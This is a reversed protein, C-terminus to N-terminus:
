PCPLHGGPPNSGTCLLEFAPAGASREGAITARLLLTVASLHTSKLGSTSDQGSFDQLQYQLLGFARPIGSIEVYISNPYSPFLCDLSRCGM